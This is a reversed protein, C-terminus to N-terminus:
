PDATETDRLLRLVDSVLYLSGAIVLPGGDAVQTAKRLGGLIDSGTEYLNGEHVIRMRKIVELLINSRRPKVWPMGDVPGFEVLVINDTAECLSSVIGKFNKGWTSALVWTVPEMGMRLRRNVYTALVEASQPNHAGDILVKEARGTLSKITGKQLRGPFQVRIAAAIIFPIHWEELDWDMAKCVMRMASLALGLHIRQHPELEFLDDSDSAWSEEDDDDIIAEEPPEVHELLATHVEDSTWDAETGDVTTVSIAGRHLGIRRSEARIVDLVLSENTADVLCPVGPKMIGAKHLAIDYLEPGLVTQHDLGVKSIITVTPTTPVANTADDRGGLGAEIVAVKVDEKTFVEFAAATLLEFESAAIGDQENRHAIQEEVLRFVWESIPEEAVNICDWRDILHPSTFRGARIGHVNLMATLYACISGKGNTGAVHVYRWPIPTHRVLRAIRALGPQIM